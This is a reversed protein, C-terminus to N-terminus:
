RQSTALSAVFERTRKLSAILEERGDGIPLVRISVDTVGADAFGNLRKEITSESGAALIDGVNRADGHELLKQYNPSVEAEALIRNARAIAADIEQDGCLCVPIGAVVRPAPRGAAAAAGALTPVVHSAIAREDAMWLITGDTREGALRLMLPGLAAILVPTPAIDTIDLPNHVRFMENEVDVAGPGRLAQDLVDLHARMTPVPREYPLGLMEDIIWHHSVGLGLALRGACVAQVSLAQQALAIPHRPQVPVVATGVEIRTTATGVLAAATLADFEDPIQPIWVTDLGMEEAWRADTLLREVKSRYRGREPGILVGLRM